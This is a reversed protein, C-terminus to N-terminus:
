AKKVKFSDFPLVTYTEGRFGLERFANTFQKKTM